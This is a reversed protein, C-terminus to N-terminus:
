ASSAKLGSQLVAAPAHRGESGRSRVNRDISRRRVRRSATRTWTRVATLRQLSTVVGAFALAFLVRNRRSTRLTTSREYSKM